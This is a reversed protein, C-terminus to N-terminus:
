QINISDIFIHGSYNASVGGQGVVFGLTITGTTIGNQSLTNGNVHGASGNGNQLTLSDVVADVENWLGKVAGSPVNLNQWTSQYWDNNNGADFQIYFFHAM